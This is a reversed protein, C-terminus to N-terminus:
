NEKFQNEITRVYARCMELAEDHKDIAELHTIYSREADPTLRAIESIAGTTSTNTKQMRSSTCTANIHLETNGSKLNNDLNKREDNKVSQLELYDKRIKNLDTEAKDRAVEVNRIQKLKEKQQEIVIADMKKTFQLDQVWASLTVGIFFAILWSYTTNM